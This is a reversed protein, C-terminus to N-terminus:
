RGGDGNALLQTLPGLIDVGAELQLWGWQGTPNIELFHFKGAKDEVLDIAGFNLGLASTLAICKRQIELPLEVAHQHLRMDSPVRWDTETDPAVQSEIAVPIAVKGVVTVRIDRAKTVEEQLIVPSSTIEQFDDRTYTPPLRNTYVARESEGEGIVGFTVAKTIVFGPSDRFFKWAADASRTVLTAPISLGLRQAVRLQYVKHSAIWVASPHSVWAADLSLLTGFLHAIAERRAFHAADQSLAPSAVPSGHGRYWVTRIVDLRWQTGAEDVLTPTGESCFDLWVDKLVRDINLRAFPQGIETLKRVVLDATLDSQETVLLIM